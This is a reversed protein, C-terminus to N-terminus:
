GSGEVSPTFGDGNWTFRITAPVSFRDVEAASPPKGLADIVIDGGEIRIAEVHFRGDATISQNFVEGLDLETLQERGSLVRVSPLPSGAQGCSEYVSIVGEPSGDGTVDGIAPFVSSGDDVEVRIPVGTFETAEGSYVGDILTNAEPGCVEPLTANLLDAETTGAGVGQEYVDGTEVDVVRFSEVPRGAASVAVLRREDFGEWAEGSFEPSSSVATPEALPNGCACRVRPVGRDDVLVATGAQLVADFPTAEGGEFGHNTVRTDERLVLPTLASIYNAVQGSPTGVAAAFAARKDPSQELFAVLAEADCAAEEGTGGYLEPTAGSVSEVSESGGQVQEFEGGSLAVPETAVSETFPDSGSAATPELIVESGGSGGLALFALVTAVALIAAAAAAWAWPRRRNANM